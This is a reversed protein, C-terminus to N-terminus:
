SFFRKTKQEKTEGAPPSKRYKDYFDTVLQDFRDFALEAAATPNSPRNSKKGVCSLSNKM